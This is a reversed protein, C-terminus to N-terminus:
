KKKKAKLIDKYNGSIFSEYFEVKDRFYQGNKTYEKNLKENNKVVIDVAQPYYPKEKIKDMLSIIRKMEIVNTYGANAYQNIAQLYYPWKVDKFKILQIFEANSSLYNLKETKEEEEKRRQIEIQYTDNGRAYFSGFEDKNAFLKGNIQYETEYQRKLKNSLDEFEEKISNSQEEFDRKLSLEDEINNKDLRYSKTITKKNINYSIELLKRNYNNVISDLRENYTAFELSDRIQKQREEQQAIEKAISYKFVFDKLYKNEVGFDNFVFSIEQQKEAPPAFNYKTNSKQLTITTPLLTNEFFCWDYENKQWELDNWETKFDEAKSIPIKLENSWKWGNFKFYIPFTENESEYTLLERYLDYDGFENIKAKIKEICIEIFKKQSQNQQREEFDSQKEFEGKQNWKQFDIKISLKINDFDRRLNQIKGWEKAYWVFPEIRKRQEPTLPAGGFASELADLLSIEAFSQSFKKYGDREASANVEEAVKAGWKIKIQSLLEANKKEYETQQQAFLNNFGAFAFFLLVFLTKIKSVKDKM